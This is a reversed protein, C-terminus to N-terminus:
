EGVIAENPCIDVCTGCETCKKQNIEYKNEVEVIAGSPCEDACAGCSLCDDTIRYAV